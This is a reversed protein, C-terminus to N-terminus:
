SSIDNTSIIFKTIWLPNPIYSYNVCTLKILKNFRYVKIQNPDFHNLIVTILTDKYESPVYKSIDRMARIDKFSPSLNTSLHTHWDGLYYLRHDSLQNLRNCYRTTYKGDIEISSYTMKANKGPESAHTIVLNNKEHYGVLAGGIETQITHREIIDKICTIGNETFQINKILVVCM